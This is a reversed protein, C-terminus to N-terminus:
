MAGNIMLRIPKDHLQLNLDQIIEDDTKEKTIIKYLGRPTIGQATLDDLLTKEKEETLRGNYTLFIYVEKGRLNSQKLFTRVPSSLRGLWIPAAIIIPNYSSMDKNCPLLQDDRDLLQDLVCTFAGLLGERNETSQLEEVTCSFKNALGQAAIKTKGTRSYFVVLPQQGSPASLAQHFREDVGGWTEATNLLWVLLLASQFLMLILYRQKSGQRYGM